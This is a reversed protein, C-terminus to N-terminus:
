GAGKLRIAPIAETAIRDLMDRSTIAVGNLGKEPMVPHGGEPLWYFIFENIGVEEYCGVYDQFAQLSAFPKEDTIGSLFSRRLTQPDRGRAACYEDLIQNRERTITLSEGASAGFKGFSNWSDGLAATIKLTAPGHAALTLPPRPRQAPMPNMAADQIQYYQGQYTTTPQRLMRDVIEVFERFRRAREPTEWTPIGTMSHDLPARGAGIGLELRGNSVHDITMAQRALLSPNRLTISTVLTGIRIRKTEAALAALLTWAEFWFGTPVYPDVFQDALWVSDFGLAELHQWHEVMDPYPLNQLTMIGFRLESSM